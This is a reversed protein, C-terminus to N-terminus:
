SLLLARLEDIFPRLVTQDTRLAFRLLQALESHETVEGSIMVSGNRLMEVRLEDTEWPGKLTVEGPRGRDMAELGDIFGRLSQFDFDFRRECAFGRSRVVLVCSFGSGDTYKEIDQLRLCQTNDNTQLDISGDFM